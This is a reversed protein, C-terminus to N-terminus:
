KTGSDLILPSKVRRSWATIDSVTHVPYLLRYLSESGATRDLTRIGTPALNEAGKWVTGSAWGAEQIIPVPRKGPPLAAPVHRQGGVVM